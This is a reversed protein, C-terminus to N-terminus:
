NHESKEVLIKGFSIGFFWNFIKGILFGSLVFFLDVGVAGIVRVGTVILSNNVPFLLYTIHSIVVLSIAVARLLDLGFVRNNKIIIVISDNVM